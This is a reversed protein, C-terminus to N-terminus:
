IGCFWCKGTDKRQRLSDCVHCSSEAESQFTSGMQTWEGTELASAAISETSFYELSERSIPGLEPDATGIYYGARSSLVQLKRRSYGADAAVQGFKGHTNIVNEDSQNM